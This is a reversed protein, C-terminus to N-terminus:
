VDLDRKKPSPFSVDLQGTQILVVVRDVQEPTPDKGCVARYVRDALARVDIVGAATAKKM